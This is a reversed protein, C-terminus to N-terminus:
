LKALKLLSLKVNRSKIFVKLEIARYHYTRYVKSNITSNMLNDHFGLATDHCQLSLQTYKQSKTEQPQIIISKVQAYILFAAERTRQDNPSDSTCTRLFSPAICPCHVYHHCFLLIADHSVTCLQCLQSFLWANHRLNRVELCNM